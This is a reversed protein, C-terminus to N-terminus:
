GPGRRKSSSALWMLGWGALLMLGANGGDPVTGSGSSGNIDLSWSELRALDPSSEDAVFLAWTGDGSMGDFVSLTQDAQYSGSLPVGAVGTASQVNGL